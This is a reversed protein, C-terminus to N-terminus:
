EAGTSDVEGPVRRPWRKRGLVARMAFNILRYAPGITPVTFAMLASPTTNNSVLLRPLILPDSELSARGQDVTVASTYGAERAAEVVLRNYDGQPYAFHAVPAGLAEQLRERSEAMERRLSARRYQTLFGHTVSHSGIEIGGVHLERVHEWSMIPLTPLAVGRDTWRTTRGVMGTIVYVTSSFGYRKLVPVAKEAVNAFADDFTIAVARPPFPLQLALHDSVESMTFTPCGERALASVHARFLGPSVSLPTGYDDISHYSLITIGGDHAFKGLGYVVRYVSRKVLRKARNPM